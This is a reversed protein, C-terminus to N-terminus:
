RSKGALHNRLRRFWNGLVLYSVGLSFQYPYRTKTSKVAGISKLGMGGGGMVEAAAVSAFIHTLVYSEEWRQGPSFSDLYFLQEM